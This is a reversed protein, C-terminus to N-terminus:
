NELFVAIKWFRKNLIRSCSTGKLQTMEKTDDGTVVIDNIYIILFTIM